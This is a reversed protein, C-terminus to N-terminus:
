DHRMVFPEQIDPPNGQRTNWIIQGIVGYAALRRQDQRRDEIAHLIGISEQLPDSFKVAVRICVVMAFNFQPVAPCEFPIGGLQPPFPAHPAHPEKSIDWAGWAGKGGCSPPMPRTHNKRSIVPRLCASCARRDLSSFNRWSASFM